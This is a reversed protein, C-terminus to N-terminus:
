YKIVGQVIDELYELEVEIDLYYETASKHVKAKLPQIVIDGNTTFVTDTAGFVKIM